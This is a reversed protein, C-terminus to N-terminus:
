GGSLIRFLYLFSCLPIAIMIGLLVSVFLCAIVANATGWVQHVNKYEEDKEDYERYNKYKDRSLFNKLSDIM